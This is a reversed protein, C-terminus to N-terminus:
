QEQLQSRVFDCIQKKPQFGVQVATKKGNKMLILAPINTIGLSQALDPNEDVDMNYFAAVEKLEESAEELVPALMRCPTCWEASFDIVAIKEEQVQEFEKGSIKKVM